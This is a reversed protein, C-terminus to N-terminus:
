GIQAPSKIPYNKKPPPPHPQLSKLGFISWVQTKSLIFKKFGQKFTNQGNLPNIRDLVRPM